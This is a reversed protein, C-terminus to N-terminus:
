DRVDDGADQILVRPGGHADAIRLFLIMKEIEVVGAGGLNLGCKGVFQCVTGCVSDGKQTWGGRFIPINESM